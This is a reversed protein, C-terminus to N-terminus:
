NRGVMASCAFDFPLGLDSVFLMMVNEGDTSTEGTLKAVCVDVEDAMRDMWM